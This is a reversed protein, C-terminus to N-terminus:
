TSGVPDAVANGLLVALRGLGVLDGLRDSEGASVSDEGSGEREGSVESVGM